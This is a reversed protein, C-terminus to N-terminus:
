EVAKFGMRPKRDGPETFWAAMVSRPQIIWERGDATNVVLYEGTLETLEALRTRMIRRRAEDGDASLDIATLGLADVEDVKLETTLETGGAILFGIGYVDSAM